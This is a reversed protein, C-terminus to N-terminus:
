SVSVKGVPPVVPDILVVGGGERHCVEVARQFSDTSSTTGDDVAGFDRVDFARDLFAPPEVPPMDFPLPREETM